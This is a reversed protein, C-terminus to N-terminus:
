NIDLTFNGAPITYQYFYRTVWNSPCDYQLRQWPGRRMFADATVCFPFDAAAGKTEYVSFDDKVIFYYFPYPMGFDGEVVRSCTGARLQLWGVIQNTPYPVTVPHAYAIQLLGNTRNCLEVDASATTTTTAVALWCLGVIAFIKKM